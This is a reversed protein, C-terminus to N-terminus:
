PDAWFRRRDIRWQQPPPLVTGPTAVFDIAGSSSTVLTRAGAAQWRGVVSPVPFGWRNHHGATFVVWRAETAAVFAASSSSRSGHHAAVVIEVPGLAGSQLLEDEATAEIDGTMLIAHEGATVRLVCSSDNDREHPQAGPHLWEFRVGDWEWRGGRRCTGAASAGTFAQARRRLSPGIVLHRVPLAGLVSATGGKHDDDDHSVAVMDLGHIGRDRLYPVVVLMGADTGSRFSPGTDFVLVHSHTAVVTALGQGVDLVTLRVSGTPL